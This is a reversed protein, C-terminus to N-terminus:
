NSILVTLFIKPLPRVSACNRCFTVSCFLRGWLSSSVSLLNPLPLRSKFGPLFFLFSPRAYRLYKLLLRVSMDNKESAAVDLSYSDSSSSDEPEATASLSDIFVCSRRMACYIAVECDLSTDDTEPELDAMLFVSSLRLKYSLSVDGAPVNLGSTFPEISALLDIYTVFACTLASLLFNTEDCWSVLM